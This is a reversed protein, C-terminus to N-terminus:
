KTPIAQAGGSSAQVSAAPALQQSSAGGSVASFFTNGGHKAETAAVMGRAVGQEGEQAAAFRNFIQSVADRMALLVSHIVYCCFRRTSLGQSHSLTNNHM